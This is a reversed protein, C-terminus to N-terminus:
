WHRKIAANNRCGHKECIKAARLVTVSVSVDFRDMAEPEWCGPLVGRAVVVSSDHPGRTGFREADYPSRLWRRRKWEPLEPNQFPWANAMKKAKAPRRKNPDYRDHECTFPDLRGSRLGWSYVPWAAPRDRDHIASGDIRSTVKGGRSSARTRRTCWQFVQARHDEDVLEGTLVMCAEDASDFRDADPFGPPTILLALALHIM